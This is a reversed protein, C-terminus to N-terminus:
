RRHSYKWSFYPVLLSSHLILGVIDDLWQYDSFAHHGCEHAIVWIGTLFCGQVFGYM